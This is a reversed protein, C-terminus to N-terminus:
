VKNQPSFRTSSRACVVQTDFHICIILLYETISSINRLHRTMYYKICSKDLLTEVEIIGPPYPNEIWQVTNANMYQINYLQAYLISLLKILAYYEMKLHYHLM